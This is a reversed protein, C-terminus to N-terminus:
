DREVLIKEALRFGIAVEITGHSVLLPACSFGPPEVTDGVNLGLSM